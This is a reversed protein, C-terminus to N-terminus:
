KKIAVQQKKRAPVGKRLNIKISEKPLLYDSDKAGGHTTLRADGLLLAELENVLNGQFVLEVHGKPLAARKDVIEDVSGSCAFRLMVDKCFTPPHVNYQELGRVHTVYKKTSRRSVEIEVLPPIGRALKLVHNGPMAVLVYARELKALWLEALEKRSVVQPPNVFGKGYLADTLSGNLAVIHPRIPDVLEERAVYADLLEKQEKVTLMGTGKRDKSSANMARVLDTDLQLLDVFHNPVIYLDALVLKQVGGNISAATAAQEQKVVHAYACINAHRSDFDVLMAMPDKKNKDPGVVLLQEKVQEALYAGFKKYRTQKLEITTGNPRNPLVHQSYFTSVLMPLDRKPKLTALAKCVASHLVQEPTPDNPALAKDITVQSKDKEAQYARDQSTEEQHITTTAKLKATTTQLLYSQDDDNSDNMDSGVLAQVSTGNHFGVNGYDGADFLGGGHPSKVGARKKGVLQPQQESWLDDGYCQVIYVGVGKDNSSSTYDSHLIGVAFPQPNGRVQVVVVRNPACRALTMGARMLHAGRCLYTSVSADVLVLGFWELSSAFSLVSLLALSPVNHTVREGNRDQEEILFWLCQPCQHYPWSQLLEDNDLATENSTNTTSENHTDTTNSGGRFYLTAKTLPGTAQLDVLTREYVSGNLFVDALIATTINCKNGIPIRNRLERRASKRLPVEVFKKGNKHNTTSSYKKALM